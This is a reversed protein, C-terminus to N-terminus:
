GMGDIELDLDRQISLGLEQVTISNEGKAIVVLRAKDQIQTRSRYKQEPHTNRLPLPQSWLWDLGPELPGVEIVLM